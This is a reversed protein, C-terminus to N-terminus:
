KIKHHNNSIHFRNPYVLDISGVISGVSEEMSSGRSYDKINRRFGVEKFTVSWFFSSTLLARLNNWYQLDYAFNIEQWTETPIQFTKASM